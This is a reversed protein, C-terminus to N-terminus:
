NRSGSPICSWGKKERSMYEPFRISVHIEKKEGWEHIGPAQHSVHGDRKERSMYEPFTIPYMVRRKKEGSMYEVLRISIHSEKKGCAM